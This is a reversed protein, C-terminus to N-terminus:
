EFNGLILQYEQPEDGDFYENIIKRARGTLETLFVTEDLYVINENCVVVIEENLLQEDLENLADKLEKYTM